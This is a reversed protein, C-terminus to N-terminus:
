SLREVTFNVSYSLGSIAASFTTSWNIFGGQPAIFVFSGNKMSGAADAVAPSSVSSMSGSLGYFINVTITAGDNPGSIVYIYYNVRYSGTAYLACLLSSASAATLGTRTLNSMVGYIFSLNPINNPVIGGNAESMGHVFNASTNPAPTGLSIVPATLGGWDPAFIQNGSPWSSNLTYDFVFASCATGGNLFHVGFFINSDCNSLYVGYAAYGGGAAITPLAITVNRFVNFDTNPGEGTLVIGSAGGIGWGVGIQINEWTNHLSDTTQSGVAIADSYISFKCGRFTLNKFNSYQVSTVGLGVSATYGFGGTPAADFIINSVQCGTIPGLFNVMRGTNPGAWILRTGTPTITQGNIQAPVWGDYYGTLAVGHYSSFGSTSGNGITLTSSIMYSKAAFSVVCPAILSAANICSQIAATDDAVGDGIAGYDEVLLGSYARQFAANLDVSKVVDFPSWPYAM